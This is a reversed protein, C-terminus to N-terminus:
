NPFVFTGTGERCSVSVFDIPVDREIGRLEFRTISVSEHDHPELEDLMYILNGPLSLTCRHWQKDDDNTLVLVRFHGIGRFTAHGTIAGVAPPAVTTTVTPPPPPASLEKKRVLLAYKKPSKDARAADDLSVRALQPWVEMVTASGLKKREAGVIPVTGGVILGNAAGARLFIEGKDTFVEVQEDAAAGAAITFVTIFLLKV